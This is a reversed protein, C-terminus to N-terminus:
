AKKLSVCSMRNHVINTKWLDMALFLFISPQFYTDFEFTNNMVLASLVASITANAATSNQKNSYFYNAIILNPYMSKNCKSRLKTKPIKSKKVNTLIPSENPIPMIRSEVPHNTSKPISEVSKKFQYLQSVDCSIFHQWNPPSSINGIGKAPRCFGNSLMPDLFTPVIAQSFTFFPASAELNCNRPKNRESATPKWQITHSKTCKDKSNVKGSKKTREENGLIFDISFSLEM